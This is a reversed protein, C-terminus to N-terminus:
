HNEIQDSWKMVFILCILINSIKKRKGRSEYKIDLCSNNWIVFFTMQDISFLNCKAHPYFKIDSSLMKGMFSYHITCNAQVFQIKKQWGLWQLKILGMINVNSAIEYIIFSNLYIILYDQYLHVVDFLFAATIWQIIWFNVCTIDDYMKSSVQLIGNKM